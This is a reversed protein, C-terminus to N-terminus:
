LNEFLKSGILKESLFISLGIIVLYMIFNLTEYNVNLIDIVFTYILLFIIWLVISLLVVKFNYKRTM